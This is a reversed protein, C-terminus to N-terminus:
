IKIKTVHIKKQRSLNCSLKIQIWPVMYNCKKNWIPDPKSTCKSAHLYVKHTMTFKLLNKKHVHLYVESWNANSITNSPSIPVGRDPNLEDINKQIRCIKLLFIWLKTQWEYIWNWLTKLETTLIRIIKIRIRIRSGGQCFFIM